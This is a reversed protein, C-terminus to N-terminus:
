FVKFVCREHKAILTDFVTSQLKTSRKQSWEQVADRYIANAFNKSVDLDDGGAAKIVQVLLSSCLEGHDKNSISKMEIMIQKALTECSSYNSQEKSMSGKCIRSYLFSTIKKMLARKEPASTTGQNFLSPDKISELSKFLITRTRLLPLIVALKMQNTLVNRMNSSFIAELLPFCRMRNALDM